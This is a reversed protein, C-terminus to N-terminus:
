IANNPKDNSGVISQGWAWYIYTNGDVNPSKETTPVSFGNSFFRFRNVNTGQANNLSPILYENDDNYGDRLEDHLFWGDSQSVNKM